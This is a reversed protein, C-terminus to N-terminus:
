LTKTTFRIINESNKGSISANYLGAILMCGTVSFPVTITM